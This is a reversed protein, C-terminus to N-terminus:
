TIGGDIFHFIVAIISAVIAGLATRFIWKSSDELKDLREKNHEIIHQLEKVSDRVEKYDNVKEELLALRIEIDQKNDM